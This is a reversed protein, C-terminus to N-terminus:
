VKGRRWGRWMPLGDKDRLMLVDDGKVIKGAVFFDSDGEKVKSAFIEIVDDKKLLDDQQDIYWAPGLRVTVKDDKMTVVLDVYTMNCGKCTEKDISVVQAEFTTTAAKDYGPCDGKSLCKGHHAKASGCHGCDAMPAGAFAVAVVAVLALAIRFNRM